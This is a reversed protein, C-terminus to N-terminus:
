KVCTHHGAAELLLLFFPAVYQVYISLLIGIYPCNQSIIRIYIYFDYVMGWGFSLLRLLPLYRIVARSPSDRSLYSVLRSGGGTGPIIRGGGGVGM